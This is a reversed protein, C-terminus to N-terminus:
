IRDGRRDHAAIDIGIDNDPDFTENSVRNTASKSFPCKTRQAILRVARLIRCEDQVTLRIPLSFNKDGSWIETAAREGFPPNPRQLLHSDAGNDTRAEAVNKEGIAKLVTNKRDNDVFLDNVSKSRLDLAGLPGSM